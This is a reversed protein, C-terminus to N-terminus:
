NKKWIICSPEIAHLALLINQWQLQTLGVFSAYVTVTPCLGQCTSLLLYASPLLKRCLLISASSVAFLVVCCKKVKVDDSLQSDPCKKGFLCQATHFNPFCKLWRAVQLM